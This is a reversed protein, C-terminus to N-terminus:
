KNVHLGEEEQAKVNCINNKLIIVKRKGDISKVKYVLM